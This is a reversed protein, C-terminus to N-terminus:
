PDVKKQPKKEFISGIGKILKVPLGVIRNFLGFITESVSEIPIASVKPNEAKGEIKFYATLLAKNEGTLVWGAVPVATLIKDVTRLPMVGLTIDLNDSVLNHSGVASLNMSESTVTLDKTSIKGDGIKYSSELLSFPMGEKNIDPLNGSFLQSINLLSFVKALTHFERLVGNKVRMHIGGRANHWFFDDSPNGEIYFDGKMLGKILGPRQFLDRHITTADIKHVYGSIKLPALQETYDFEVRARCWGTGSNFKIPYITLRERDGSILAETKQFHLGGLTGQKASVKITIPPPHATHPHPQQTHNPNSFLHIIDLVNVRDSQIDLAVQPDTFNSIKGTVTAQTDEELRVTIPSFDLSEADIELKGTLDYFTLESMSFILDRARIEKGSLNLELQPDKWNKLSGSVVFKSEGLSTKMKQFTFGQRNFNIKGTTHNMDAILDILHVGFDKLKLSGELTEQHHTVAPEIKGTAQIRQLLPSFDQLKDLSIPDAAFYYEQGEPKQQFSGSGTINLDNLTLSFRELQLQNKALSGQLQLTSQDTSRKHFLEKYQFDVAGLDATLQFEPALFSGSLSLSGSISNENLNLSFHDLQLQKSSLHGQLQLKSRDTSQKYNQKGVQLKVAGLDAQLLFEPEALMGTLILSGPIEGSIDGWQAPLPLQKELEATELNFNIKLDIKPHIFLHKIQGSFEINQGGAVLIGDTIQLVQNELSLETSFDQIQKLEPIDWNLNSITVEAGIHPLNTAKAAPNWNKKLTLILRDLEGGLFKEAEPVRWAKLIIPNLQINEIGFRGDLSYKNVQRAFILQGNLPVRLLEGTLKTISDLNNSSTWLGSLSFIKENSGSGSLTANFGTGEAPVGAIKLEFNFAKPYKQDPLKPLKDTSIHKVQLQLLHTEERWIQPNASSPLRTELSFDAGYEEVKGTVVLHGTKKSQWGQLVAYLQSVELHNVDNDGDRQSLVFNANHISLRSIGLTNFLQHSTGKTPREPLPLWLQVNPEEIEIQDLAVKRDFLPAIKLTATIKPIQVLITGDRGIKVQQFEMALGHNYTLASHGIQVPQKLASSLKQELTSRYDNLDLQYFLITLLTITIACLILLIYVARTLIQVASQKM